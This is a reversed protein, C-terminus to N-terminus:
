GAYARGAFRRWVVVAWLALLLGGCLSAVTLGLNWYLPRFTIQIKHLGPDVWLGLLAINTRHLEAPQGDITAQWGPHWVESIVLCRRKECSTRVALSGPQFAILTVNDQPSEPSATLWDEQRLVITKYHLNSRRVEDTMQEEDDAGVVQRAWYARPLCTRNRYVFLDQRGLGEYLMYRPQDRFQAVLEYRATPLPVAEDFVLYKVNLADLLSPHILNVFDTWVRSEASANAIGQLVDFYTQYCRLNYSNFGTILQLHMPAAWGYNITSRKVPAVRFPEPDDAFFTAFAAQPLVEERPRMTLYRRSYLTGEVVMVGLVGVLVAAVLWRRPRWSQWRALLEELGISALAIGLLSVLFLLRNPQRFLAYGPLWDFLFRSIPTDVTLVLCVAVSGTLWRTPPRSWAMVMGVFALVLPILGFYAVDEWLEGGPYSGDLPTGLWEPYLFTLLHQPELHHDGLFFAYDAYSRTVLKRDAFLSFLLPATIGVALMGSVALCLLKRGLSQWQGRWASLLAQVLAYSIALLLVYYLIQQQGSVLFLAGVSTLTATTTIGPRRISYTVATLLLPAMTVAPVVVLWGAYGAIILKFNLLGALAMFLRGATGLGMSAGWLFMTLGMVLFNIWLTPGAATAPDLFAFLLHLPNTYQSQPDTLAPRRGNFREELVTIGPRGLAISLRGM